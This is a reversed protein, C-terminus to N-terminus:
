TFDYISISELKQNTRFVQVEYHPYQKKYDKLTGSALGTNLYRYKKSQLYQMSIVNLAESLQSVEWFKNFFALDFLIDNHKALVRCGYLESKDANTFILCEYNPDDICLEVCNIYRKKSFTIQHVRPDSLKQKVWQTHLDNINQLDDSTAVSVLIGMKSALTLPSKIRNQYKKKNSYLDRNFIEEFDYLIEISKSFGSRKVKSVIEGELSSIDYNESLLFHKDKTKSFKSFLYYGYDTDNIEKSFYVSNVYKSLSHIYDISNYDM